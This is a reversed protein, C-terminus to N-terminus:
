VEAIVAEFFHNKINMWHDSQRCLKEVDRLDYLFEKIGEELYITNQSGKVFVVSKQESAVILDRMQRGALRSNLFSFVRTEGFAELLIPYVYRKMEEGVLVVSAINSEVILNALEIHLPKSEEGLERMDGLFLMKNYEPELDHLYKVGGSISNFGGNYSGDIVM